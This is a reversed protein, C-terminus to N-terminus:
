FDLDREFHCSYGRPNKVLYKQHFEEAPYYKSLAVIETVVPRKWVGSAEVRKVMKEAAEKQADSAYFVASRYQTGCDNGQQNVTTPDHVKYFKYLIEEFSIKSPDFVIRVTEAHGSTGTKVIEYNPNDVNGGCYGVESEVVGALQALLFELGWFCGGALYCTELKREFLVAYEGYGEEALKEKPIFRLSNSNICYRLGNEGPGDSFVHGLHSDAHKSRVETRAMALKFDQKTQIFAEDIPRTFSPWGSGSDYKDLSSFLPEGSVLDVYIGERKNSNFENQFPPETGDRQTVNYQNETLCEKIDKDSPKVFDKVKERWSKGM